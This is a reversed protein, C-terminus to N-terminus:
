NSVPAWINSLIESLSSNFLHPTEIMPYHSTAEITKVEFGLKCRNKLGTFNTPPMPINILYLPLHLQTLREPLIAQHAMLGEITAVGIAPNTARIDSKVRTKVHEPTTPQFLMHDAYSPAANKFDNVLDHFSAQMQEMMEPSMQSDIYKFNDIGVLGVIEPHKTLAAALMIDGSMSHGIICVQKLALVDIFALLDKSYNEISWDSRTCTTKGFGPLDLAIVRYNKSFHALSDTWYSSNICWGHVFLLTESADGAELYHIQCNNHQLLVSKEKM